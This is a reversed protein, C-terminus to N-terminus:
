EDKSSELIYPLLGLLLVKNTGLAPVLISEKPKSYNVHTEITLSSGNSHTSFLTFDGLPYHLGNNWFSRLQIQIKIKRVLLHLSFTEKFVSM